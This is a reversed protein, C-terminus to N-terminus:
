LRKLARRARRKAKRLKRRARSSPRFRMLAALVLVVIAGIALPPPLPIRDAKGGGALPAASPTSSRQTSPGRTDSVQTSPTPSGSGVTSSAQVTPQGPSPALVNFSWSIPAQGPASIVAKYTGKTLPAKPILFVANDGKLIEAGTPGYVPDPSVYDYEDVICLDGSAPTEAAGGVPQLSATLQPSPTQPLLAILPLGSTGTAQWGCTKLPDPDEGTYETLDTTMGPGPFLVTRTDSAFNVGSIVDLGAYGASDSAFAVTTVDPRLIGIAHFPARLWGDIFDRPTFDTKGPYLDSRSGEKAGAATYYPSAPNETHRSQYQGTLYSAPTKELYTLHSQIGADWSPQDVVSSLGSAQRYFNVEALWDNPGVVSAVPAFGPPAKALSATATM